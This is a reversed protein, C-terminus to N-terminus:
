KALPITLIDIVGWLTYVVMPILVGVFLLLFPNDLMQQILPVKGTADDDSM